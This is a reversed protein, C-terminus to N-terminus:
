EFKNLSDPVPVMIVVTTNFGMSERNGAVTHPYILINIGVEEKFGYGYKLKCHEPYCFNKGPVLL